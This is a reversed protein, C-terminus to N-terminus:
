NQRRGVTSVVRSPMPASLAIKASSRRRPPVLGGAHHSAYAAHWPDCASAPSVTLSLRPACALGRLDSPWTSQGQGQRFDHGSIIKPFSLNDVGDIHVIEDPRLSVRIRVADADPKEWIVAHVACSGADPLYFAIIRTSGVTTLIPEHPGVPGSRIVLEEEAHAPASAGIGAVVTAAMALMRGRPFSFLRM